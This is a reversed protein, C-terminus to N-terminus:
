SVPTIDQQYAKCINGINMLDVTSLKGVNFLQIADVAIERAHEPSVRGSFRLASVEIMSRVGADSQYCLIGKDGDLDFDIAGIHGILNEKGDSMERSVDFVNPGYALDHCEYGNIFLRCGEISGFDGALFDAASKFKVYAVVDAEVPLINIDHNVTLHDKLSLPTVVTANEVGDLIGNPM